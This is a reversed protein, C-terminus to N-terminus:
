QSQLLTKLCPELRYAQSGSCRLMQTMSKVADNNRLLRKPVNWKRSARRAGKRASRRSATRKGLLRPKSMEKASRSPCQEAENPNNQLLVELNAEFYQAAKTHIQFKSLGTGLCHRIEVTKKHGKGLNKEAIQLTEINLNVARELHQDTGASYLASVLSLRDDCIILPEAGDSAKM